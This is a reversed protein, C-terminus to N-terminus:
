RALERSGKYFYLTYIYSKNINNRNYTSCSHTLSSLKPIDFVQHADFDESIENTIEKNGTSIWRIVQRKIWQASLRTFIFFKIWLNYM